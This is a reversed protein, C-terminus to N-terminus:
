CMNCTNWLLTTQPYLHPRTTASVSAVNEYQGDLDCMLAIYLTVLTNHEAHQTDLVRLKGSFIIESILWGNDFYELVAEKSASSLDPIPLSTIKGNMIGAYGEQSPHPGTWFWDPM